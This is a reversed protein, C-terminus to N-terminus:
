TKKRFFCALSEVHSTQPYFDYLCLSTLTYGGAALGAADRALTVPDCSVYRIEPTGSAALWSLTEKELGARPPDAVVAGFGLAADRTQAWTKARLPYFRANRDALNLRAAELVAANEEVVAFEEFHGGLELSFVGCGGYMDLLRTRPPGCAFSARLGCVLRELGSINSQFFGRPDFYVPTGLVRAHLGAGPLVPGSYAEPAFVRADAGEALALVEAGDGNYCATVTFRSRGQARAGAAALADTVAGTSLARRLAPVAAPCDKLPVIGASGRAMFGAEGHEGGHVQIRSRYEWPPGEVATIEPLTMRGSGPDGSFGARFFAERLIARKLEVQCPYDAIQLNCGGCIGYLPCRPETRHPSPELVRLVRARAYDRKEQTVEADVTEGPLAGSLFLIKGDIRALCDGGPIIKEARLIM